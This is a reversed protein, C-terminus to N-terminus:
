FGVWKMVNGVIQVTGGFAAQLYPILEAGIEAMGAELNANFRDTEPNTAVREGVRVLGLALAEERDVDEVGMGSGWDFPPWPNKFPGLHMWIPSTKLAVFPREKAGDWGVEEGANNWIAAWDRKHQREEVRVLRQAPFADLVDPDLDMKRRAYGEAQATQMDYILQLRPVSRIDMITGDYRGDQTQIGEEDAIDRLTAVFNDRNFLRQKGNALDERQIRMEAALRDRAASLFRASEVKASFMARNRLEAPVNGWELSNLASGVPTKRDLYAAAEELPLFAVGAEYEDAALGTVVEEARSTLAGAIAAAGMARTLADELAAHDMTSYADPIQSILISLQSLDGRDAAAEIKAFLDCVPQLWAAPLSLPHTATTKTTM